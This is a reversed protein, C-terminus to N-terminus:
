FLVKFYYLNRPKPCFFNIDIIKLLLKQSEHGCQKIGLDKSVNFLLKKIEKPLVFKKGKKFYILM